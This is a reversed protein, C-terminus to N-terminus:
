KDNDEKKKKRGVKRPLGHKYKVWSKRAAEEKAKNKKAQKALAAEEARKKNRALKAELRKKAKEFKDDDKSSM